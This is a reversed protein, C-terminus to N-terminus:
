LLEFRFRWKRPQKKPLLTFKLLTKDKIIKEKFSPLFMQGWHTNNKKPRTSFINKKDLYVKFYACMGTLRNGKKLNFSATIKKPIKNEERLDLTYVSKEKCIFSQTNELRIISPAFIRSLNQIFLKNALKSLDLSFKKRKWFDIEKILDSKYSVPVLYLEVKFPIIRGKKKLLNDRVYAVKSLIVENWLYSGIQEHLLLDVKESPKFKFINKKVFRINKDLKNIRAIEIASTIIKTNEVAYIKKCGKKAAFFSLIGVGCGLDLVVDSPSLNEEIARKYSQTRIKDKILM